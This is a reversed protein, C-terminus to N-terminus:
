KITKTKKTGAEDYTMFLTESTKFNLQTASLTMM